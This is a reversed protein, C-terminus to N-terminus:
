LLETIHFLRHKVTIYLESDKTDILIEEKPIV